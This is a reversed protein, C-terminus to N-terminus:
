IVPVKDEEDYDTDDIEEYDIQSIDKEKVYGERAIESVSMENLLQEAEEYSNAEIEVQQVWASLM